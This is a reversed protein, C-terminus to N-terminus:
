LMEWINRRDDLAGFSHWQLDVLSLTVTCTFNNDNTADITEPHGQSALGNLICAYKGEKPCKFTKVVM